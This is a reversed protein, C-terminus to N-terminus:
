EQRMMGVEVYARSVFDCDVKSCVLGVKFSADYGM